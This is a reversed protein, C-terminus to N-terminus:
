LAAVSVCDATRGASGSAALRVDRLARVLRPGLLSKLWKGMIRSRAGLDDTEALARAWNKRALGFAGANYCLSALAQHAVGYIEGRSTALATARPDRFLKDLFGSVTRASHALDLSAANGMSGKPQDGCGLQYFADAELLTSPFITAAQLFCEYARDPNGYQLFEICSGLYARSYARRALADGAADATPEPGVHKRLVALRNDLMRVPNTSMSGALVRHRILVDPIGVVTFRDSIRLWMDWDECSRLAPDFGGVAEYCERRVLMSEPVLFNGDLLAHRFGAPDMARVETQPLPELDENVFRYGCYVAQADARERLRKVMTRLFEPEYADDADLVAVFAGRAAQIGTNRAASLGQNEQRIYRVDDGFRAAAEGTNDTSGDDVVIIEFSVDQQALVSKVAGPLYSGHNYCPIVVSAVPGGNRGTDTRPQPM